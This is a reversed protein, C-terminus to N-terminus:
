YDHISILTPGYLLSFVLSNISKSQPTPSSEQSDRQYWLSGFDMRFSILGSYKSSPSISFCFSWYKPWRIPLVSENSFGQHQSLNFAFSSTPQLSHLPYIADSIWHVHIKALQPFCHLVSSGPRSCAMADCNSM